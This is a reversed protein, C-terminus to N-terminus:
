PKQNEANTVINVAYCTMRGLSEDFKYSFNIRNFIPCYVGLRLTLRTCEYIACGLKQLIFNNKSYGSSTFGADEVFLLESEGHDDPLDGEYEVRVWGAPLFTGFNKNHKHAIIISRIRVDYSTKPSLTGDNYRQQFLCSYKRVVEQDLLVRSYPHPHLSHANNRLTPHKPLNGADPSNPVAKALSPPSKTKIFHQFIREHHAEFSSVSKEDLVLLKKIKIVAKHQAPEVHALGDFENVESAARKYPRDHASTLFLSKMDIPKPPRISPAPSATPTKPESASVQASSVNDAPVSAASDAAKLKKVQRPESDDRPRKNGAMLPETPSAVIETDPSARTPLTPPSNTPGSAPNEPSPPERSQTAEEEVSTISANTEERAGESVITTQAGAVSDENRQSSTSDHGSRVTAAPAAPADDLMLNHMRGIQHALTASLTEEFPQAYDDDPVESTALHAKLSAAAQGLEPVPHSAQSRPVTIGLIHAFLNSAKEAAPDTAAAPNGVGHGNVSSRSSVTSAANLTAQQFGSSRTRDHNLRPPLVPCPRSTPQVPQNHTRAGVNGRTGIPHSAIRGTATRSIPVDSPAPRRSNRRGASQPAAPAISRQSDNSSGVPPLSNAALLTHGRGAEPGLVLSQSGQGDLLRYANNLDSFLAQPVNREWAGDTAQRRKISLDVARRIDRRNEWPFSSLISRAAYTLPRPWQVPPLGSPWYQEPVVDDVVLKTTERGRPM